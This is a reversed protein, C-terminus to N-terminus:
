TYSGPFLSKDRNNGLFDKCALRCNYVKWKRYLTILLNCYYTSVFKVVQCVLSAFLNVVTAIKGSWGHVVKRLGLAPGKKKLSLALPIVPRASGTEFKPQLKISATQIYSTVILHLVNSLSHTGKQLTDHIKKNSDLSETRFVDTVWRLFYVLLKVM